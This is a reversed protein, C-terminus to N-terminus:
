RMEEEVPLLLRLHPSPPPQILAPLDPMPHGIGHFTGQLTGGRDEILGGCERVPDLHEIQSGEPDRRIVPPPGGLFVVSAEL